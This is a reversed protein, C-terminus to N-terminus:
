DTLRPGSPTANKAALRKPMDSNQYRIHTGKTPQLPVPAASQEEFNVAKSKGEIAKARRRVWNHDRLNHAVSLGHAKLKAQKQTADQYWLRLKEITGQVARLAVAGAANWQAQSAGALRALEKTGEPLPDVGDILCVQVLAM